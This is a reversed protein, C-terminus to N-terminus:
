AEWAVLFDDYVERSMKDIALSLAERTLELEEKIEELDPEAQVKNRVEVRKNKQASEPTPFQIIECNQM